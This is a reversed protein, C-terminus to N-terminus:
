PTAIFGWLQGSTDTYTGTISGTDNIGYCYTATAGPADFQNYVGKQLVFGHTLSSSDTFWGVVVGLNNIGWAITGTTTGPFKFTRLIKGSENAAFSAAGASGIINGKNNIATLTTGSKKYSITAGTSVFGTGLNTAPNIYSGVYTGSGNIAYVGTNKVGQFLVETFGGDTLLFGAVNTCKGHRIFPEFGAICYEGVITSGTSSIGYALTSDDVASTDIIQEFTGNALREYGYSPTAEIPGVVDGLNDIAWAGFVTAEYPQFTTFTYTTPPAPTETQAACEPGHTLLTAAALLVLAAMCAKLVSNRSAPFVAATHQFSM